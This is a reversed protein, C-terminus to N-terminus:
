THDSDNGTPAKRTLRGPDARDDFGERSSYFSLWM